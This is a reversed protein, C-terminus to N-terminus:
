DIIAGVPALRFEKLESEVFRRQVNWNLEELASTAHDM